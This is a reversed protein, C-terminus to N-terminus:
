QRLRYVRFFFNDIPLVEVDRFGAQLTYHRLTSTRMVTGTAASPQDVMGVPLCHMVSWGYMMWEIDNGTPTFTDGVREDVVLVAGDDGALKRMTALAQVPNSMDHLAEFMTVLDYQGAMSSDGANRAQFRVRAGVGSEQANRKAAEISATDLDFGHVQSKPYAQAMGISSWGAGCGFDAILAPPDAKLRAHVDPIAPLWVQGLEQLFMARNVGAQGELVDAGYDAFPIGKGTQFAELLTQVPSVAGVVLQALPSLYNLSDQMVLVEEHARPLSFRRTSADDQPNEVTLIGTVTQQELWERIYREHTGTHQALETSTLAIHTALTQYLGLKHGIYITFIDFVGGMSELIREVFNDRQAIEAENLRVVQQDMM